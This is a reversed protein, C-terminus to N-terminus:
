GSAQRLGNRPNRNQAFCQQARTVRDRAFKFWALSRLPAVVKLENMELLQTAYDATTEDTRLRKM